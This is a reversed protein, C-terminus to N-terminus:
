APLGARGHPYDDPSFEDARDSGRHASFKCKKVNSSLQAVPCKPHRRQDRHRALALPHGHQFPDDLTTTIAYV